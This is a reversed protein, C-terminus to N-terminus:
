SYIGFICLMYINKIQLCSTKTTIQIQIFLDLIIIAKSDIERLIIKRYIKKKDEEQYQM